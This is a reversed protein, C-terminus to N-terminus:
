LGGAEGLRVQTKVEPRPKYVKLEYIIVNQMEDTVYYTEPHSLKLQHQKSKLSCSLKRSFM